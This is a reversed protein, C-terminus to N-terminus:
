AQRLRAYIDGSPDDTTYEDLIDFLEDYSLWRESNFELSEGFSWNFEYDGLSRLIRMCRGWAHPFANHYEFSVVRVPEHLTLLVEAEMGEVDVKLFAPTGFARIVDRLTVVEVEITEDWRVDFSSHKRMQERWHRGAMTSITPTMHSLHFRAKGEEAGVAQNLLIVRNDLGFEHRLERSLYPNPEVGVVRSAGLDLWAKLRNGLHAGIDYCVDGPRVFQSYFKKLKRHVGPKYRYMFRSRWLGWTRKLKQKM